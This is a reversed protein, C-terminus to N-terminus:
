PQHQHCHALQGLLHLRGRRLRLYAGTATQRSGPFKAGLVSCLDVFVNRPNRRYRSPSHSLSPLATTPTLLGASAVM